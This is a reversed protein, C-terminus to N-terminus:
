GNVGVRPAPKLPPSMPATFAATFNEVGRGTPKGQADTEKSADVKLALEITVVDGPKLANTLDAIELYTGADATLVAIGGPAIIVDPVGAPTPTPSPTPLDSPSSSPKGGPKGAKGSPSTSPSPASAPASKEAQHKADTWDLHGAVPSKGDTGAITVTVDGPAVAVPFPTQNIIWISMPASDGKAYGAPDDYDVFANQVLIASNPNLAAPVAVATHGGPVSATTNATAAVQGTGCGSLMSTAVIAAVGAAATVLRVQLTSRAV